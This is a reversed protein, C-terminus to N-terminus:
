RQRAAVQPDLAIREGPNLGSLVEVYGAQAAGLRLQRLLPKGAANIVYVGTMEARRQVASQPVRLQSASSLNAPLQVRAFMGPVLGPLAPLNLRLEMTHSSADVAPLLQFSQALVPQSQGPLEVRLVAKDQIQLAQSQALHARVRLARPEYVTLLPRGPMAMEGLAVPLESIVGDYPSRVVHFDGQTRTLALQALQAQVQAQTAKFQAEAQDLAAQSIFHQQHLQKQREYERSALQLAARSAQAQAESAQSAQTSARADIRLLVQGARVRDGAKVELQVIAGSVQASVATQRVAEVLGEVSSGQQGTAAAVVMSRLTPAHSAATAGTTLAEGFAGAQSVPLATLLAWLALRPGLKRCAKNRLRLGPLSRSRQKVSAPHQDAHNM